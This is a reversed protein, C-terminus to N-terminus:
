RTIIGSDHRDSFSVFSKLLAAASCTVYSFFAFARCLYHGQIGMHLGALWHPSWINAFCCAYSIVLVPGPVTVRSRRSTWFVGYLQLATIINSVLSSVKLRMRYLIAYSPHLCFVILLDLPFICKEISRSLTSKYLHKASLRGKKLYSLM